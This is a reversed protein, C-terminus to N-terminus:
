MVEGKKGSKADDRREASKGDEGKGWEKCWGERRIRGAVWSVVEVRHIM